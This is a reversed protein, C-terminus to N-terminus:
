VGSHMDITKGSPLTVIAKKYDSRRGMSRGFRVERGEVNVVNVSVPTVGYIEKVATKIQNKNATRAVVFSYKNASEAVASKETVLPKVLIKFAISNNPLKVKNKVAQKDTKKEAKAEKVEADKAVVVRKPKKEGANDLQEKKKKHLWNNILGM